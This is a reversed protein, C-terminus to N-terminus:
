KLRRHQHERQLHSRKALEQEAYRDLAARWRRDARARTRARSAYWTIGVLAALALPAMLSVTRWALNDSRLFGFSGIFGFISLRAARSVASWVPSTRWAPTTTNSTINCRPVTITPTRRRWAAKWLRSPRGSYDRGRRSEDPLRPRRVRGRAPPPSGPVGEGGRQNLDGRDPGRAPGTQATRSPCEALVRGAGAAV